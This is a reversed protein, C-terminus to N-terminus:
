ALAQTLYTGFADDAPLNLDVLLKGAGNQPGEHGNPAEPSV